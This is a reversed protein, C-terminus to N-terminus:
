FGEGMSPAIKKALDTVFLSISSTVRCNSLRKSNTEIRQLRTADAISSTNGEHLASLDMVGSWLWRPADLGATHGYKLEKM